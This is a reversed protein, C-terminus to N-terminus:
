DGTSVPSSQVSQSIKKYCLVCVLNCAHEIVLM